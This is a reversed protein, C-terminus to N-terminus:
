LGFGTRRVCEALTEDGQRIEMFTDLINEIVRPCDGSKFDGVIKGFEDVTGGLSIQYGEVSGVAERMRMGRLGIDAIRYPSCSNPCGTINIIVKDQIAQYRAQKVVTMLQEYMDRTRSVALPCYTTGVCPVIDTLGYFGDTAFGLKKIEAKLASVNSPMVGHLEINQRNTTYLRKDGYIESLEALRVIELHTLEGMPIMARVTVLKDTGVPD